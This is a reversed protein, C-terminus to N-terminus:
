TTAPDAIAISSINIKPIAAAKTQILGAKIRDKISLSKSALKAAARRCTDSPKFISSLINGAKKDAAKKSTAM